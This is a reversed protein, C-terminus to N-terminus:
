RHEVCSSPVSPDNIDYTCVYWRASSQRTDRDFAVWIRTESTGVITGGLKLLASVTYTRASQQASAGTAALALLSFAVVTAFLSRRQSTITSRDTRM